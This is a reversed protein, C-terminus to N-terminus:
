IQDALESLHEIQNYALEAKVIHRHYDDPDIIGGVADLIVGDDDVLACWLVESPRSEVQCWGRRHDSEWDDRWNTDNEWRYSCGAREVLDMARAYALAIRASEEHKRFYRFTRVITANLKM